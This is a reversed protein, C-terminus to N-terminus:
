FNTQPSNDSVILIGLAVLLFSRSIVHIAIIWTSEGKLCRSFYSYPMAVGVIFLFSPAILDWFACGEWEVHVFQRGLSQWFNSDPFRQALAPIFGELALIMM